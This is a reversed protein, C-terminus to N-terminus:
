ELEQQSVALSTIIPEKSQELLFLHYVHRLDKTMDGSSILFLNQRRYNVLIDPVSCILM